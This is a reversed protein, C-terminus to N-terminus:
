QGNKRAQRIMKEMAKLNEPTLNVDSSDLLAAMVKEASGDFFTQIVKSIASQAVETRPRTPHYNYRAGKKTHRLLGKNELIGMLSRVTSYSPSDKLESMVEQATAEELRYVIEM